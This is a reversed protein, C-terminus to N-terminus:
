NQQSNRWVLADWILAVAWFGIIQVLTNTMYLHREVELSDANYCLVANVLTFLALLVPGFLIPNKRKTYIMLLMICLVTCVGINFLPFISSIYKSYGRPEDIYFLDHSMIRAIQTKSEHQMLIYDPHTLMFRTYTSQGHQVIWTLFPTYATDTYLAWLKHQGEVPVVDLKGFNQELKEADPMGQKVFWATYGPTPLIRVVVNNIVPLQYRLGAKTGQQQILFIGISLLLLTLYNKLGRQKLILWLLCMGGYFCILVYPWSDRTFALLVTIIVHLLLSKIDNKKYLLLMSALWCFLLAASLSESLVLITWGFINWWSLLMYFSLILFYKASPKELFSILVSILFFGSLWYVVRQMQIITDTNARCLKYFLPVTFPRPDFGEVKHPFFFEPSTISIKSQRLYDYPDTLNKWDDSSFRIQLSLTLVVIFFAINLWFPLMKKDTLGFKSMSIFM